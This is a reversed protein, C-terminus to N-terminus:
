YGIESIKREGLTLGANNVLIDIHDFKSKVSKVFEEISKRQSLDLAFAVVSGGKQKSIETVAEQNKAASRSGFIVNHGQDYLAKVTEFGIGSNGGTVVINKPKMM